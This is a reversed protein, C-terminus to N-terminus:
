RAVGTESAPGFDFIRWQGDQERCDYVVAEREGDREREVQLLVRGQQERIRQPEAISLSGHEFQLLEKTSFPEVLADDHYYDHATQGDGADLATVFADLLAEPTDGTSATPSAGDPEPTATDASPGVSAGTRDASLLHRYPAFDTPDLLKGAKEHELEIARVVHGMEISDSSEDGAALIAATQGMTKIQGGTFDFTSLFDFDVEGLPADEPFIAQWIADRTEAEPREFSVTHDIRRTFASDINSAYNTTLLVVGDYAEIRQLLYNVEANAYRDTSDSVESRDGFVADAEDFLLIANSHEAAQFIEELNEETEGIYKSVVSSLDIRYLDMGVDNALIEAAMTKGTGSPGEFLAVVGTGKSFKAGFGWEEYIRAQHRVHDAVLELGETTEASLQIDSWDSAPEIHEALEALEDASQARCGEYVHDPRLDEEGALSRATSLAARLQGQTLRFTGALVAPDLSDPLVDGHREWFQQRLTASPYPFEVIADVASDMAGTPRWADRGTVFLDRQFEGFADFVAELSHGEAALAATANSLHLPRDQLLAERWLRDLAGAELVAGLDAHLYTEGRVVAAVGDAKPTGAPGHWYGRRPQDSEAAFATLREGLESSVALDSVAGSAARVDLAGEGGVSELAAQLETDVGDYGRLYEVVREPVVFRRDRDTARGEPPPRLELLDHRRLPSDSGVLAGAAVRQPATTAFLREVLVVTLASRTTHDQLTQYRARYEDDLDPALALLLVDLHRRSLDFREALVRLRLTTETTEACRQDIREAQEAIHARDDDPVALGLAPPDCTVNGSDTASGRDGGDERGSEAAALLTDIRDLEDLLHRHTSQYGM